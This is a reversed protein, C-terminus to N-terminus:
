APVQELLRRLRGAMASRSCGARWALRDLPEEPHRSRLLAAERVAPPLREWLAPDEHLRAAVAAQRVGAVVTRRLNATEGNLRRNVQARVDRVVRGEEFRLRGSQAGISSLAAGVGEVTRLCVLWGGRRQLVTSPLGLQALDAALRGAARRSRCSIELHPPSDPRSVRGAALFAGRLRARACCNRTSARDGPAGNRAALVAYRPKRPARQRVVRAERGGTHLAHLAARAAAARTTELVTGSSGTGEASALRMGEVLAARCCRLPPTHPALEAVVQETLSATRGPRATM